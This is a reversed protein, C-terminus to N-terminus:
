AATSLGPPVGDITFDNSEDEITSLAVPSQVIFIVVALLSTYKAGDAPPSSVAVDPILIISSDAVPTSLLVVVDNLPIDDFEDDLTSGSKKQKM